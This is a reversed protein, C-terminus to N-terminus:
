NLVIMRGFPNWTKCTCRCWRWIKGAVIPLICSSIYLWLHSASPHKFCVNDSLLSCTNKQFFFFFSKCIFPSSVYVTCFQHVQLGFPTNVVGLCFAHVKHVVLTSYELIPLTCRTLKLFYTIKKQLILTDMTYLSKLLFESCTGWNTWSYVSILYKVDNIRRSKWNKKRRKKLNRIIIYM